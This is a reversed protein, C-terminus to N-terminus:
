FHSPRTIDIAINNTTVTSLRDSFTSPELSNSDSGLISSDGLIPALSARASAIIPSLFSSSSSFSSLFSSLRSFLSVPEEGHQYEYGPDITYPNVVKSPITLMKGSFLPFRVESVQSAASKPVPIPISFTPCNPCMQYTHQKIVFDENSAAVVSPLAGPSPVQKSCILIWNRFILKKLLKKLM